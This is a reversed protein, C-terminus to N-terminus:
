CRCSSRRRAGMAPRIAAIADDLDYAKCTLMCAGRVRARGYRRRRHRGAPPHRGGPERRRSRRPCAPGRPRSPRPLDGRGRGGGAPRRFLRRHCRRRSRPHEHADERRDVGPDVECGTASCPSSRHTPRRCRTTACRWRGCGTSRRAKAAAYPTGRWVRCLYLPMLLHFDTTPTAPSPSPLSAARPSTSRRAGRAARAGGGGGADRGRRGQRRSVGLLGALPSARGAPPRAARPRRHRGARGRRRPRDAARPRPPTALGLCGPEPDTIPMSTSTATPSIAPGSPRRARASASTSTSISGRPGAHAGRGAGRRLRRAAGGDRAVAVGGIRSRSAARPRDARGGQRRGHRDPGLQRRRRRDRDQGAALQRRRPAITRAAGDDAAGTVRITVFKSIGEGDKSWRSPSTRAHGRRAGRPVPRPAADAPDDIRAIAPPAPRSCWCRTTPRPTAISPSATSRATSRTRRAAGAAGRRAIAADTFVFALMTAMDPAIM